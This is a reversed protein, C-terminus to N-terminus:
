NWPIQDTIDTGAADYFRIEEVPFAQNEEPREDLEQSVLFREGAPVDLTYWRQDILCKICDISFYTNRGGFVIYDREAEEIIEQRFNGGGYSVSDIKYKGRLGQTLRIMGLQEGKDMLVFRRKGISVSDYLTINHTIPQPKGVNLAHETEEILNSQDAKVTYEFCRFVTGLFFVALILLGSLAASKILIMLRKLMDNRM